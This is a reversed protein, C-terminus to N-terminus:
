ARRFFRGLSESERKLLYLRTLLRTAEPALLTKSSTAVGSLTSGRRNMMRSIQPQWSHRAQWCSNRKRRREARPSSRTAVEQRYEFSNGM